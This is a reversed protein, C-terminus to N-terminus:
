SAEQGKDALEKVPPDIKRVRAWEIRHAQITEIYVQLGVVTYPGLNEGDDPIGGLAGFIMGGLTDYDEDPLEIGLVKEVDELPTTGQIRWTKTDVPIINPETKENENWGDTIEGVLKELLDHITLVGSVGGYEDIVIAFHQHSKQMDRLLADIKVSEPVYYPERLYPRIEEVKRIGRRLAIYFDKVFLTGVVDDVDKGCVPLRTHSAQEIQELWEELSDDMWLVQMDTRHTMAEEATKNELELVNNIVTREQQDISGNESGRDVMARIEDETIDEAKEVDRIGCLRLIGDAAMSFLFSFPRFIWQLLNTVVATLRLFRWEKHMAWRRVLLWGIWGYALVLICLLIFLSLFHAAGPLMRSDIMGQSMQPGVYFSLMLAGLSLSAVQGLRLAHLTEQYHNWWRGVIRAVMGRKEKEQELETKDVAGLAAETGAMLAFILVLM